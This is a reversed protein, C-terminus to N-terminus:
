DEKHFSGFKTLITSQDPGCITKETHFSVSNKIDTYYNYVNVVTIQTRSPHYLRRRQFARFTNNILKMCLINQITYKM